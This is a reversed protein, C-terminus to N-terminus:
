TPCPPRRPIWSRGPSCTSGTELSRGWSTGCTTATTTGTTGPATGSSTSSWRPDGRPWSCCRSAPPWPPTRSPATSGAWYGAIKDRERTEILHQAGERYWDHDGFYRLGTLRGARELGYLYYFKWLPGRPVNQSVQFHTSLWDVGRQLNPNIGGKGCNKITGDPLLTEQGEFRKLGTIVLSTVGACTMSGSTPDNAHPMYGWGGDLRQTREWYDRSLTWVGPAVPVGVEAAANLALLAYQSNSNDGPSAKQIDYTWTGAWDAIGPRDGAKIQAKELWAVNGAIAVKFRAPDAAAFVMTQLSVAYTSNLQAATFRQLYDLAKSVAPSDAKEGATLLALAVLSTTGTNAHMDADPWSGNDNQRSILDKGGSRIAQEVQERTVQASCPIPALLWAALVVVGAALFPRSFLRPM